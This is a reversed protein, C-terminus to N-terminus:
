ILETYKKSNGRSKSVPYKLENNKMKEIFAQKIDTKTEHALLLLYYYVDAIEEALQQKKEKPLNNDKTWQFIEMIEAVEVALSIALNKPLHFQKWNRRKQFKLIDQLDQEM